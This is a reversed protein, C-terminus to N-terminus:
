GNVTQVTATWIHNTSSTGGATIQLLANTGSAVLTVGGAGAQGGTHMTTSYISVTGAVNKVTFAYVCGISTTLGVVKASYYVTIVYCYDTATALTFVTTATASTTNLKGQYFKMSPNVGSAATTEISFVEAANTAQLVNFAGEVKLTSAASRYLYTDTYFRIGLNKNASADNIYLFGSPTLAYGVEVINTSGLETGAYMVLAGIRGISNFLRIAGTVSNRVGVEILNTYVAQPRINMGVIDFNSRGFRVYATSSQAAIFGMANLKTFPTFHKISVSKVYLDAVDNTDYREIKLTITNTTTTYFQMTFSEAQFQDTAPMWDYTVDSSGSQSLTFRLQATYNGNSNGECVFSFTYTSNAVVTYQTMWAYPKTGTTFPKFDIKSQYVTPTPSGGASWEGSFSSSPLSMTYDTTDSTSAWTTSNDILLAANGGGDAVKISGSNVTLVGNVTLAGLTGTVANLTGGITLTTGDWTLKDKLSLYGAGDVYFATNTNNYAGTGVFIKNNAATASSVLSIGGSSITTDNFSWGGIKATGDNSVYFVMNTGNSGYIGYGGLSGLGTLLGVRVVEKQGSVESGASGMVMVSMRTDSESYLELRGQGASGMVAFTDGASWVDAVGGVSRTVNYTTGSVLSGVKIYEMKTLTKLFVIDGVTMTKGFDITAVVSTAIAAPLRGADKTIVQWGGFVTVESKSIISAKLTSSYFARVASTASGVDYANNANPIMHGSSGFYWRVVDSTKLSLTGAGFSGIVTAGDARTVKYVTGLSGGADNRAILEYNSGTNGTGTETDTNRRLVWRNVGNAQLVIDTVSATATTFTAGAATITYVFTAAGTSRDLKLANKAGYSTYFNLEGTTAVNTIQWDTVGSQYLSVQATAGSVASSRLLGKAVTDGFKNVNFISASAVLLDIILSNSASATDTVNILVASFTVLADNWTVSGQYIPANAGSVTGRTLNARAGIFASNTTINSNSTIAGPITVTGASDITLRTSSDLGTISSLGAIKLKYGDSQDIGVMWRALGPLSFQLLADGSGAQTITLGGTTGTLTNNSYVDVASQPSSTGLGVSLASSTSLISTATNLTMWHRVTDSLTFSNAVIGYAVYPANAASTMSVVGGNSKLSNGAVTGSSTVAGANWVGTTITGVVNIDTGVLKSSAISGALMSNTVRTAGISTVGANNITVDGSMTVAAAINSANGVFINGSTLVTQTTGGSGTNSSLSGAPQRDKFVRRSDVTEYLVSDIM